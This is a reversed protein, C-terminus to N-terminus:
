TPIDTSRTVGNTLTGNNAGSGNDTATTGTGEFRWYGVPSLSSIDNPM